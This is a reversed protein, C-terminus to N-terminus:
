INNLTYQTRLPRALDIAVIYCRAYQLLLQKKKEGSNRICHIVYNNLITGSNGLINTIKVIYIKEHM